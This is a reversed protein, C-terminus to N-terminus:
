RDLVSKRLESNYWKGKAADVASLQGCPGPNREVGPVTLPPVM